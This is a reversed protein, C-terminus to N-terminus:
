QQVVDVERNEGKEGGRNMWYEYKRLTIEYKWKADSNETRFQGDSM